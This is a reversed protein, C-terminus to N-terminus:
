ARLTDEVPRARVRSLAADLEQLQGWAENFFIADVGFLDFKKGIDLLQRWSIYKVAEAGGYPNRRYTQVTARDLGYKVLIRHRPAIKANQDIDGIIKEKLRTVPESEMFNKAAEDLASQALNQRELEVKRFIDPPKYCSNTQLVYNEECEPCNITAAYTTQHEKAWPHDPSSIEVNIKGKGCPCPREASTYDTGMVNELRAGQSSATWCWSFLIYSGNPGHQRMFAM